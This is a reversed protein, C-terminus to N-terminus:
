RFLKRSGNTSLPIPIPRTIVVVERATTLATGVAFNPRADPVSVM